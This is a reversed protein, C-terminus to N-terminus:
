CRGGRTLLPSRSDIAVMTRGQSPRWMVVLVGERECVHTPPPEQKTESGVVAVDDDGGGRAQLRSNPTNRTKKGSVIAAV